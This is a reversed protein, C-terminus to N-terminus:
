NQNSARCRQIDCATPLQSRYEINTPMVGNNRISCKEGSANTYYSLVDICRRSHSTLGQFHGIEHSVVMQLTEMLNRTANAKRLNVFAEPSLTLTKKTINALGITGLKDEDSWLATIKLGAVSSSLDRKLIVTNQGGCQDWAVSANKLSAMVAEESFGEPAGQHDYVYVMSSSLMKTDKGGDNWTVIENALCQNIESERLGVPIATSVNEEAKKATPTRKQTVVTDAQSSAVSSASKSTTPNPSSIAASKRANSLGSIAQNVKATYATGLWLPANNSIADLEAAPCNGKGFKALWALANTERADVDNITYSLAKFESSLCSAGLTKVQANAFHQSSFLLYFLLFLFGIDVHRFVQLSVFTM